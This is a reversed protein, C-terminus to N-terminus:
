YQCSTKIVGLGYQVSRKFNISSAAEFYKTPCTIEAIEYGKSFVQALFQNDFVFDDSNSEFPIARLVKKSFARYGTYYESLKQNLLINQFFTLFRNAIRMLPQNKLM